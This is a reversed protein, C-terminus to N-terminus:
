KDFYKMIGNVISTSIKSQYSDQRLLYRENDNSLFGVEILVGPITVKRNLLMTSIEDIERDTNLDEKLQNQMITAIIKNQENVDDYFVQAGHWTKSNTSNLHISIYMDANSDNILRVRNNLDSKKRSLANPAGLDYDDYRTLYVIAGLKGLDEQLKLCIQLNIDKEYIDKYISGPDTGGHGPDIYIIKGLLPLENAKTNIFGFISVFLIFFIFILIKQKYMIDGSLYINKNKIINFSM